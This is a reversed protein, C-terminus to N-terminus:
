DNFAAINLGTSENLVSYTSAIWLSLALIITIAGSFTFLANRKFVLGRGKNFCDLAIFYSYYYDCGLFYVLRQEQDVVWESRLIGKM